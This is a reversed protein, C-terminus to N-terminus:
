VIRCEGGDDDSYSWLGAANGAHWGGNDSLWENFEDVDVEEVADVEFVVTISLVLNDDQIGVQILHKASNKDLEFSYNAENLYESPDSDLSNGDFEFYIEPLMNLAEEHKNERCLAKIKGLVNKIEEDEIDDFNIVARKISWELNVVSM